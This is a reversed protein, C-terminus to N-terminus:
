RGLGYYCGVPTGHEIKADPYCRLVLQRFRTFGVKPGPREASRQWLTFMLWTSHVQAYYHLKMETIFRKIADCALEVRVEAALLKFRSPAMWPMDDPQAHPNDLLLAKIEALNRDRRQQSTEHSM